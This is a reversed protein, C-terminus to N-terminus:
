GTFGPGLDVACAGAGNDAGYGFAELREDATGHSQPDTFEVGAPDALSVMAEVAQDVSKRGLLGQRDAWGAWAGAFCDAQLEAEITLPFETSLGLREQVGHGFEHALIVATAMDGVEEYYPLMFNPEDWAIFDGDGCDSANEPMAAEGACSPGDFEPPYYAIFDAPPVWQEEFEAPLTQAWYENIAGLALDMSADYADFDVGAGTQNQPTFLQGSPATAPVSGRRQGGEPVPYGNDASGSSAPASEGSAPDPEEAAACGALLLV